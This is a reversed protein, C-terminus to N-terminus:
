FDGGFMQMLQNGQYHQAMQRFHAMFKDAQQRVNYHPDDEDDIVPEYFCSQDYCLGSPPTYHEDTLHTFIYNKDESVQRAYQACVLRVNSMLVKM